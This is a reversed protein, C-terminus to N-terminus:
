RSWCETANLSAGQVGQEGLHNLTLVGCADQIQSTQPVAKLSFANGSPDTQAQISYADGPVKLLASPIQQATPYSGQIVAAREIWQATQMLSLKAAQRHGRRLYNQYQPLAWGMVIATLALVLLSELLSLGMASRLGARDSCPSSTLVPKM